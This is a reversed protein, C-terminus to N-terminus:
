QLFSCLGIDDESTIDLKFQLITEHIIHIVCNPSMNQLDDPM